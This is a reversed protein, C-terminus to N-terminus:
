CVHNKDLIDTFKDTKFAVFVAHTEASLDFTVANLSSKDSSVSTTKQKKQLCFSPFFATLYKRSADCRM